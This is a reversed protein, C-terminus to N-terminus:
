LLVFLSYLPKLKREMVHFMKREQWEFLIDQQLTIPVGYPKTKRYTLTTGNKYTTGNRFDFDSTDKSYGTHSFYHEHDTLLLFACIDYGHQRYTELNKLDAFVDYRNNPERHNKKKFFKLEIASTAFNHNDGLCMSVDILATNSGSKVSVGPLNAYSELEIHFKDRQKYEYISGLASFIAGLQLQMSAENNFDISGGSVKNILSNCGTKVVNLLNAKNEDSPKRCKWMPKNYMVWHPINADLPFNNSELDQMIFREPSLTAIVRAALYAQINSDRQEADPQNCM